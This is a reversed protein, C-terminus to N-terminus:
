ELPQMSFNNFAIFRQGGGTGELSQARRVLSEDELVPSLQNDMGLFTEEAVNLRDPWAKPPM